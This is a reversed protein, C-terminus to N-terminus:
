KRRNVIIGLGHHLPYNYLPGQITKAIDIVARRVDPFSETDHFVAVDSHRAAWLGCEYTERYEHVIDVHAFDFRDNSQGIFDRYDSRVLRINPYVALREKTEDYHDNRYTTHCDGEFTDVGIVEEFFSSLAVTSYGFEVGFEICRARGVHFRVIIDEIISELGKWASIIDLRRAPERLNRPRYEKIFREHKKIQRILYRIGVLITYVMSIKQVDM